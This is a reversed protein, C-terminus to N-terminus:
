DNSYSRAHPTFPAILTNWASAVVTPLWCPAETEKEEEVPLTVALFATRDASSNWFVLSSIRKGEPLIVAEVAAGALVVPTAVVAVLPM